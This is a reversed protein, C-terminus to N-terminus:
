TQVLMRFAKAAEAEAAAFGERQVINRFVGFIEPDWWGNGVEEQMISMAKDLPFGDKYPRTTTLADYVDVISLIRATRPIQEGYLGDPYGSGDLKEHHHRIIPLVLKGLMWADDGQCYRLYNDLSTSLPLKAPPFVGAYDVIGQLLPKLAQAM